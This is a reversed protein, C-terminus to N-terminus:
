SQWVWSMQVITRSLMGFGYKFKTRSKNKICTECSDCLTKINDTLNKATYFPKIKNELQKAGIHCYTYHIYKIINKSFEETLIIKEKNGSRKYYLKNKLILRNKNQKIDENRNQDNQIDELRVLNVIKLVEEQNVHSELVPNRSLSDAELNLKGPSYIVEFNFQSLYYTLDGLEEDTRAKINLKELPKHDSFM